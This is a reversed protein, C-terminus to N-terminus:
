VHVLIFSRPYMSISLPSDNQSMGFVIHTPFSNTDFVYLSVNIYGRFPQITFIDFNLNNSFPFKFLLICESMKGQLRTFLYVICLMYTQTQTRTYIYIMEGKLVESLWEITCRLRRIQLSILLPMFINGTQWWFHQM